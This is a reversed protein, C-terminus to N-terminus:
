STASSPRALDAIFRVFEDLQNAAFTGDTVSGNQNKFSKFSACRNFTQFSQFWKPEYGNLAQHRAAIRADALDFQILDDVAAEHALEIVAAKDVADESGRPLIIGSPRPSPAFSSHSESKELRKISGKVHWAFLEIWESGSSSYM